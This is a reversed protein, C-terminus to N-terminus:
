QMRSDRVGKQIMERAVKVMTYGTYTYTVAFVLDREKAIRVLEEFDGMNGLVPDIIEYDSTDYRHSSISAFVPNLYSM